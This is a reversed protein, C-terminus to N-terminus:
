SRSPCTAIDRAIDRTIDPSEISAKGLRLYQRRREGRGRALALYTAHPCALLDRSGMTCARHSGWAWTAAQAVLGERMPVQDIDRMTALVEHDAVTRSSQLMWAGQGSRTLDRVLLPLSGPLLGTVLLELRCALLVYAHVACGRRLTACRLRGFDSAFGDGSRSPARASRALGLHWTPAADDFFASPPLDM